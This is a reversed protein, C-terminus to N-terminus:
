PEPQSLPAPWIIWPRAPNRLRDRISIGPSAFSIMMGPVYPRQIARGTPGTVTTTKAPSAPQTAATAPTTAQAPPSEAVSGPATALAAVSSPSRLEQWNLNGDPEVRVLVSQITSAGSTLGGVVQCEFRDGPQNVRYTASGCDILARKGLAQSLEQQISSEVRVLNLLTKSNPVDWTVQGQSDQQVVNITFTGDPDLEGVCRFSAGAQRTVDTPCRVALLSLRRGQREIDAKIAAEVEATNLRNGCATGGVIVLILLPALSKLLMSIATICYGVHLM